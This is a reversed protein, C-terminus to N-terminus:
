KAYPANTKNTKKMTQRWKSSSNLKQTQIIEKKSIQKGEIRTTRFLQLRHTSPYFKLSMGATKGQMPFGRCQGESWEIPFNFKQVEKQFEQLTGHFPVSQIM